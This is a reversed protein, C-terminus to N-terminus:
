PSAKSAPCRTFERNKRNANEDAPPERPTYVNYIWSNKGDLLDVTTLAFAVDSVTM